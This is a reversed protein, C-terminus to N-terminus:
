SFAAHADVMGSIFFKYQRYEASFRAHFGDNVPAWGTVRIDDPLVKNLVFPYDLEDDPEPLPQGTLAKSRVDLTVVNALASVGVDTRGCRAYNMEANTQGPRVLCTQTLAAFLRSEVTNSATAQVTFGHYKWGVYLLRLSIHRTAFRDYDFSKKRKAGSSAAPAAEQVCADSIQDCRDALRRLEGALQKASAQTLAVGPRLIALLRALTDREAVM